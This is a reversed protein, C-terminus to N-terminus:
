RMKERLKKSRSTVCATLRKENNNQVVGTMVKKKRKEPM